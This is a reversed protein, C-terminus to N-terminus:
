LHKCQTDCSPIIRKGQLLLEGGEVIKPIIDPSTGHFAANWMKFIDLEKARPPLKLMIRGWRIPLTCQNNLGPGDRFAYAEDRKRSCHDCYCKNSTSKLDVLEDQLTFVIYM